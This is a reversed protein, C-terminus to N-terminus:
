KPGRDGQLTLTFKSGNGDSATVPNSRKVRKKGKHVRSAANSESSCGSKNVQTAPGTITQDRASIMSPMPSPSEGASKRRAM